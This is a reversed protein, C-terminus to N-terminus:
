RGPASGGGDLPFREVLMRIGKAVDAWAVDRNHWTTVPRGNKPLVQLHYFPSHSWDVPRLIIPVVIAEGAEHRELARVMETSYLYDSDLFDASILLLIIDASELTEDIAESWNRGPLIIRDHWQRIHGQRRLLSLHTELRSRLKEDKHSYCYILRLKRGNQQRGIM